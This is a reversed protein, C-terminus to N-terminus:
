CRALLIKGSYPRYYFDEWLEWLLVKHLEEAMVSPLYALIRFARCSRLGREKSKRNQFFLMESANMLGFPIMKLLNALNVSVSLLQEKQM